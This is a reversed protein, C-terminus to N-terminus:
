KRQTFMAMAAAQYVVKVASRGPCCSACPGRSTGPPSPRRNAQRSLRGAESAIGDLMDHVFSDMVGATEQSLSLDQHFKKLVRPFYTAFSGGRSPRRHCRPKEQTQQTTSDTGKTEQPGLDEEASMESTPETSKDLSREAMWVSCSWVRVPLASSAPTAPPLRALRCFTM